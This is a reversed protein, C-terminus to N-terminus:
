WEPSKFRAPLLYRAKVPKGDKQGPTWAPMLGVVRLVENSLKANDSRVIQA